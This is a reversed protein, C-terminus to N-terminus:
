RDSAFGYKELGVKGLLSEFTERCGNRPEFEIEIIKGEYLFAVTDRGIGWMNTCILATYESGGVNITKIEASACVYNIKDEPM